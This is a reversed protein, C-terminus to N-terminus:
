ATLVYQRRSVVWTGLALAVAFVGGLSVLADGATGVQELHLIKTLEATWPERGTALALVRLHHQVALARINGPLMPLNALMLEFAFFYGLGIIMPWKVIAGLAAFALSYVAGGVLMAQALPAFLAAFSGGAPAEPFGSDLAFATWAAAGGLFVVLVALAALWRGVLVASRPIPRSFLYSLTRDEIEEAVVASGFILALVPTLMQVCLMWGLFAVPAEARDDADVVFRSVVLFFSGPGAALLLAVLGRKSLLMRSFQTEFLVVAARLFDRM